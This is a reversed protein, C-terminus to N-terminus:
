PGEDTECVIKLVSIGLGPPDFVMDPLGDLPPTSEGSYEQPLSWKTNGSSSKFALETVGRQAQQPGLTGRHTFKGTYTVKLLLDVLYDWDTVAPMSVPSGAGVRFVADTIFEGLTRGGTTVTPTPLPPHQTWKPPPTCLGNKFHRDVVGFWGRIGTPQNSLSYTRSGYSGIDNFAFSPWSQYLRLQKLSSEGKLKVREAKSAMKAQILSATRATSRRDLRDVVVLLDALECRTSCGATQFNVMPSGHCFVSSMCVNLGSGALIPRWARAIGPVAGLVAAAVYGVETRPANVMM